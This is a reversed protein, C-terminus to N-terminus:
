LPYDEARHISWVGAGEIKLVREHYAKLTPRHCVSIYQILCGLIYPRKTLTKGNVPLDTM